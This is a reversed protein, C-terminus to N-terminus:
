LIDSRAFYITIKIEYYAQSGIVTEVRIQPLSARATVFASCENGLCLKPASFHQWRVSGLYDLSITTVIITNIIATVIAIVIDVVAVVVVGIVVVDFVEIVVVVVVIAVVVLIIKTTRVKPGYHMVSGIDYPVSLVSNHLKLFQGRYYGLNEVLVHVTDDRDSRQQEHWLGLSHGIEHM